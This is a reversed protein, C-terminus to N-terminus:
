AWLRMFNARCNSSSTGEDEFWGLPCWHTRVRGVCETNESNRAAVIRPSIRELVDRGSPDKETNGTWGSVAGPKESSGCMSKKDKVPEALTPQISLFLTGEVARTTGGRICGNHTRVCHLCEFQSSIRTTHNICISVNLMSDFSYSPTGPIAITDEDNCGIARVKM